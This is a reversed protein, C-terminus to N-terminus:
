KARENQEGLIFGQLMNMDRALQSAQSAIAAIRHLDLDGELRSVMRQLGDVTAISDKIVMKKNM